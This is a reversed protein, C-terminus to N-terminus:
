KVQREELRYFKGVKENRTAAASYTGGLGLTFNQSGFPGDLPRTLSHGPNFKGNEDVQFTLTVQAGWSDPLLQDDASTVAKGRQDYRQRFDRPAGFVADRLECYVALKIQKEMHVTADPDDGDGLEHLQPISAGCGGLQILAYLSVVGLRCRTM